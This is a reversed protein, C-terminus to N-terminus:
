RRTWQRLIEESELRSFFEPTLRPGFFSSNPDFNDYLGLELNGNKEIQIHIIRRSVTGGIGTVIAKVLDDELPLVVFDQIPWSTNRKLISTEDGSAGVLDLIPM